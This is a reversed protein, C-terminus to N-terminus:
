ICGGHKKFKRNGAPRCINRFFIGAFLQIFISSKVSFDTKVTAETNETDPVNLFFASVLIILGYTIGVIIFIDPISRGTNLLKETFVTLVVAALGFGGAAIGTMLGKKEPLM